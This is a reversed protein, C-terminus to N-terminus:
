YDGTESCERIHVLGLGKGSLLSELRDFKGRNRFNMEGVLAVVLQKKFYNAYYDLQGLLGNIFETSNEELDRLLKIEVGM